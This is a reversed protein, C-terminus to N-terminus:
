RRRRRPTLIRFDVAVEEIPLDQLDAFERHVRDRFERMSEDDSSRKERAPLTAPFSKRWHAKEALRSSPSDPTGDLPIFVPAKPSADPYCQKQRAIAEEAAALIVSKDFRLVEVLDGGQLSPCVVAVEDVKPIIGISGDAHRTVALERDLSSRIAVTKTGESTTVEVRAHPVLGPGKIAKVTADDDIYAYVALQRLGSKKLRM